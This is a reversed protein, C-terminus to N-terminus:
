GMLKALVRPVSFAELTLVSPVPLALTVIEALLAPGATIVATFGLLVLTCSCISNTAVVGADRSSCASGNVTGVFPWDVSVAMTRSAAPLRTLFWLTFKTSVSM